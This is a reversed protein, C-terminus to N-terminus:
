ILKKIENILNEKPFTVQINERQKRDERSQLKESEIKGTGSVQVPIPIGSFDVSITQESVLINGEDDRVTQSGDVASGSVQFRAIYIQRNQLYQQEDVDILNQYFELEQLEEQTYPM